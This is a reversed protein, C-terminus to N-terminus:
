GTVQFQIPLTVRVRVDRGDVQAPRFRMREVARLAPGEFAPDSSSTVQVTGMDAKGEEDLVFTVMVNGQVRAERLTRPYNRELFRLVDGGNRLDPRREVQSLEYVGGGSAAPIQEAPLGAAAAVSDTAAQALREPERAISDARRASDLAARVLDQERQIRALSDEATTAAASDLAASDVVAVAPPADPTGAEWPQLYALAGGAATLALIGAAVVPARSRRVPPAVSPPRAGPGAASARGATASALPDRAAVSGAPAWATSPPTAYLTHDDAPVAYLTADDDAQAGSGTGIAIASAQLTDLSTGRATELAHRFVSADSWRRAPDMELARRLVGAVDPTVEPVSSLRELAAGAEAEQTAADGSFPRQGTLLFLTVAALSFVDAAPTIREDGRLQEPAAYTPSLPARGAVALSPEDFAVQAIGFDLIRVQVEGHEDLELFLNGPKVDRHVMGTRHGAALGRAAQSVIALAAAPPLRRGNATRSALDEGELLEMVLYDLGLAQDTGFDHATVVHPHRLRAAAQAERLFRQRLHEQQGADAGPVMIVKLAVPRGLRQDLARYVAGMGGRGIVNQVLYRDALVQGSLLGEFGSM